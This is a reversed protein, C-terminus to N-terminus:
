CYKQTGVARLNNSLFLISVKLPSEVSVLKRAGVLCQTRYGESLVTHIQIYLFDPMQSIGTVKKWFEECIVQTVEEDEETAKGIVHQFRGRVGQLVHKM